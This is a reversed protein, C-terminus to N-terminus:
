SRTLEAPPPALEEQAGAFCTNFDGVIREVLDLPHGLRVLATPLSVKGTVVDQALAEADLAEPVYPALVAVECAFVEAARATEARQQATCAVLALGMLAVAKM